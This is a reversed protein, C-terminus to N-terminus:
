PAIIKQPLALPNDPPFEISQSHLFFRACASAGYKKDGCLPHGRSAAQARIQHTRGTKIEFQALTRNENKQYSLVKVKTIAKKTGHAEKCAFTKKAAKDRWLNDEWIEAWEETKDAGIKGEVFAIYTKTLLGERLAMTVYQAGKLSKSFIIVGSTERDLRHLPGPRFSLSPKIKDKLYHQVATDLSDKGHVVIGTRKNLILLDDNEFLIGLPHYTPPSPTPLTTLPSAPANDLVAQVFIQISDGAEVRRQPTASTGNVTIKKKRLLRHLASLPLEPLARRLIRDLRRGADDDAVIFTQSLQPEM